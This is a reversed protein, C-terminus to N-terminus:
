DPFYSGQSPRPLGKARERLPQDQAVKRRCARFTTSLQDHVPTSIQAIKHFVQDIDSSKNVQYASGGTRQSLDELLKKLNPSKM